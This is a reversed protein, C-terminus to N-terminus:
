VGFSKLGILINENKGFVNSLRISRICLPYFRFLAPINRVVYRVRLYILQSAKCSTIPAM